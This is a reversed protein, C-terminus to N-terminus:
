NIINMWKSEDIAVQQFIDRITGADLKYFDEERPTILLGGFDVSAPSLLLQQSGKAYFQQPRHKGRLFIVIQWAADEWRALVNVMPEPEGPIKKILYNWVSQFLDIMLSEENGKIVIAKRFGDDMALVENYHFQQIPFMPISELEKEIPMVGKSGAQFHFHDPASAGCQPGNYFITFDDLAKSLQLLTKFHGGLRQQIHHKEVITLHKPFIPYPNVLIEYEDSFGVHAQVAPRNDGCLFCPRQSISANDVKAASSQIRHPNYQVKIMQKNVVIERTLLGALDGYNTKALEWDNLQSLLLNNVSQQITM